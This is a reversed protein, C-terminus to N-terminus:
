PQLPKGYNNKEKKIELIIDADVTKLDDKKYNSYSPLLIWPHLGITFIPETSIIASLIM